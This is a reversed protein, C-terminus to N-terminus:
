LKFSSPTNTARLRTEIQQVVKIQPTLSILEVNTTALDFNLGKVGRIRSKLMHKARSTSEHLQALKYEVMEKDRVLM